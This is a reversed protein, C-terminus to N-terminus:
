YYKITSVLIDRSLISYVLVLDWNEYRLVFIYRDTIEVFCDVAVAIFNFIFSLFSLSHIFAPADNFQWFNEDIDHLWGIFVIPTSDPILTNEYANPAASATCKWSVMSVTRTRVRFNLIFLYPNALENM